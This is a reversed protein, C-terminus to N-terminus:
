CMAQQARTQHVLSNRLAVHLIISHLTVCMIYETPHHLTVFTLHMILCDHVTAYLIHKILYTNRSNSLSTNRTHHSPRTNRAYCAYHSVSHLTVCMAHIFLHQLTVCMGNHRSLPTNRVYSTQRPTIYMVHIFLHQLTVCMGNHRSLPTIRMSGTQRPTVTNRVYCTYHFVPTNRVDRKNLYHLTSVHLILPSPLTDRVNRAPCVYVTVCLVHM